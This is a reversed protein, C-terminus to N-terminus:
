RASLCASRVTEVKYIRADSRYLDVPLFEYGRCLMENIIQLVTYTDEEKKSADRGKQHIEEMRARVAKKGGLAAEADIDEGRVTLFTAYFEM